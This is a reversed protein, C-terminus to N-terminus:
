KKTKLPTHLIDRCNQESVASGPFATAAISAYCAVMVPRKICIYM